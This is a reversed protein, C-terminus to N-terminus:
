NAWVSEFFFRLFIQLHPKHCLTTSRLWECWVLWVAWEESPFRLRRPAHGDECNLRRNRSAVHNLYVNSFSTHSGYANARLFPSTGHSSVVRLSALSLFNCHGLQRSKRCSWLTLCAWWALYAQFLPLRRVVLWVLHTKLQVRILFCLRVFLYCNCVLSMIKRTLYCKFMCVPHYCAFTHYHKM